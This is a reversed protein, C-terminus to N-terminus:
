GGAGHVRGECWTPSIISFTLWIRAHLPLALTASRRFPEEGLISNLGIEPMYSYTCRRDDAIRTGVANASRSNGAPMPRSLGPYAIRRIWPRSTLPDLFDDDVRRSVSV